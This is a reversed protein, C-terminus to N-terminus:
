SPRATIAIHAPQSRVREIWHSVAEFRSLDFGGENACHVYGFLCIDAATYSDGVLFDRTALHQDLVGLARSGFGLWLGFDRETAFGKVADPFTRCFRARGIVRDINSQEFFMWRLVHARELRDEPMLFTSETLWCLISNSEVLTTGDSLELVPIEGSPNKALFEETRTDGALIDLFEYESPIGLQALALRIKYGNGSFLYDYLRKPECHM